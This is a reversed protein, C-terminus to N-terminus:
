NGNDINFELLGPYKKAAAFEIIEDFLFTQIEIKEIYSEKFDFNEKSSVNIKNIRLSDIIQNQIRYLFDNEVEYNVTKSTDYMIVEFSNKNGIIKDAKFFDTKIQLCFNSVSNKEEVDSQYFSVQKSFSTYIYYVMGVIISMIAINILMELITFARLSVKM